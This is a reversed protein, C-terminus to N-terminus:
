LAWGGNGFIEDCFECWGKRKQHDELYNEAQRKWDSSGRTSGSWQQHQHAHYCTPCVACYECQDTFLLYMQGEVPQFDNPDQGFRVQVLVYPQEYDDRPRNLDYYWHTDTDNEYEQPTPAPLFRPGAKKDGDISLVLHVDRAQLQGSRLLTEYEDKVSAVAEDFAANWGLDVRQQPTIILRARVSRRNVRNKRNM